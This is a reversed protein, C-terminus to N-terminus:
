RGNRRLADRLVKGRPTIDEAPKMERRSPGEHEVSWLWAERYAHFTWDWGYEEFISIWDALWQEAGKAWAVCGFEGVYIRANYKLQFDRMPQVLQKLWERNWGKNADPYCAGIAGNGIVSQHTYEGPEYIHPSYIVNPIDYCLWGYSPQIIIPTVPDIKRVERAITDYLMDYSLAGSRVDYDRDGPENLLDYGYILPEGKFAAAIERWLQIMADQRTKNWLGLNNNIANVVGAGRHLDIVIRINYKRFFHMREQLEKIRKRGWDLYEEGSAFQEPGGQLFQWRMLNGGWEEAFVRFDEDTNIRGVVAGRYRTVHEAPVFARPPAQKPQPVELIRVDKYEAVGDKGAHAFVLNFNGAYSPIHVTGYYRQWEATHEVPQVNPPRYGWNERYKGNEPYTPELKLADGQAQCLREGRVFCELMVTRGRLVAGDIPAIAKAPGTVRLINGPLLEAGSPLQMIPISPNGCSFEWLVNPELAFVSISIAASFLFLRMMQVTSRNSMNGTFGM